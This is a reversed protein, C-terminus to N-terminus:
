LRFMRASISPSIPSAILRIARLRRAQFKPWCRESSRDCAQARNSRREEASAWFHQHMKKADRDYHFYFAGNEGVVADVPWMRAIHDCWGAPRGTVPMVIFGARHLRELATYAAATLSGESTITDDIDALVVKIGRLRASEIESLPRMVVVASNRMRQPLSLSM